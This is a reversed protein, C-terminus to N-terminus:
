DFATNNDALLTLDASLFHSKRKQVITGKLSGRMFEHCVQCIFTEFTM